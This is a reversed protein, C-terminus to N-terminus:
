AAEETVYHGHHARVFNLKHFRAEEPTGWWRWWAGCSCVLRHWRKAAM